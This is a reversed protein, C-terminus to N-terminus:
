KAQLIKTGQFPSFGPGGATFAQFRLWQVELSNGQGGKLLVGLTPKLVWRSWYSQKKFFEMQLSGIELYPKM